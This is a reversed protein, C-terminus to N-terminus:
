TAPSSHTLSENKKKAKRKEPECQADQWSMIDDAELLASSIRQEAYTRPSAREVGM